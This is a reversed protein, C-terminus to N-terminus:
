QVYKILCKAATLVYNPSILSGSCWGPTQIYNRMIGAAFPFEEPEARRGDLVFPSKEAAPLAAALTFLAFCAFLKM